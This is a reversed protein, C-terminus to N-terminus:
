IADGTIAVDNNVILLILQLLYYLCQYLPADVGYVDRDRVGGGASKNEIIVVM